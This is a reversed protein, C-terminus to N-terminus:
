SMQNACKLGQKISLSVSASLLDIVEETQLAFLGLRTAM